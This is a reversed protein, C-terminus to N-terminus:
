AKVASVFRATRAAQEIARSLALAQEVTMLGGKPLGGFMGGAVELRVKASGTDGDPEDNREVVVVAVYQEASGGATMPVAVDSSAHMVLGDDPDVHHNDCWPEACATALVPATM